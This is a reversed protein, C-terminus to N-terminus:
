PFYNNVNSPTLITEQTNQGTRATDNHYTAVNVQAQLLGAFGCCLLASLASVGHKCFNM